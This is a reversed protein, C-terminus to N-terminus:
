GTTEPPQLIVSEDVSRLHLDRQPFAIEINAERFSQDIEQHLESKIQMRDDVLGWVRLEFDLTSDGFSLFLVQPPPTNIVMANEKACTILTEIVTPVDSGYAVGVQIIVRVQRNDLTWNTVQNSVLDANPIILDAEDYTRVTTARLGIRKIEAWNGGLEIIDGVRVPRELLLILGSVFNNVVGQLGFGIGVGLASLIITLETIKFGLISFVVFLGVVIIVYHVLRAISFRVGRALSRLVLADDMLLKRFIRSILLCGYFVGVAIILLGASIRQSGMDFGLALIGKTAEGLNGYVGWIYLIAPLVVLGWIGADIFRSLGRLIAEADDSHLKAGLRLRFISFLSELGRHMMYMFLMFVLVIAMSNILSTFLYLAMASKGLLQAIMIVAFFLSNLRLSWTYLGPDKNRGSEGVWWVCFFLGVVTTLVMYLRFLPLPFSFVDMLKTAIYVTVLGHIYHRKWSAEIVGGSLRVFSIGVIIDNSVKWIVPAGEYGYIIAATFSGFFLGVSFPRAALFRWRESESLVQRNRYVSIVVSLFIFGLIFMIWGKQVFFQGDPWSVKDVGKQMAYWLNSGFQSFYQSSLMPPSAMSLASLRKDLILGDLEAVLTIIEAQIDGAKQQVKLMDEMQSVTLDLATDITDHAKKFSSRLQYIEGEGLLLSQWNNWQKKESLWEARHVSLQRIEQGLPKIIEELLNHEKQVATRLKKLKKHRHDKSAKLSQFQGAPDKLSDEVGDLKKEIASIDLLDSVENKLIALRGSLQSALPIIEDLNPVEIPTEEAPAEEASSTQDGPSQVQALAHGSILFVAMLMSIMVLTLLKRM